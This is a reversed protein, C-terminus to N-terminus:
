DHRRGHERKHLFEHDAHSARPSPTIMAEAPFEEALHLVEIERSIGDLIDM